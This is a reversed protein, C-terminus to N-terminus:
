PYYFPDNRLKSSTSKRCTGASRNFGFLTINCRTGLQLNIRVIKDIFLGGDARHCTPSPPNLLQINESVTCSALAISYLNNTLDGLSTHRANFDDGIITPAITDTLKEFIPGASNLGHPVYVSVIRIWTQSLKVEVSVTQIDRLDCRFSKVDYNRGVLLMVGGRARFTDCRFIHFDPFYLKQNPDLKTELVM